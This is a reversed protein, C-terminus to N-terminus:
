VGLQTRYGLDIRGIIALVLKGLVKNGGPGFDHGQITKVQALRLCQGMAVPRDGPQLMARHYAGSKTSSNILWNSWLNLPRWKM